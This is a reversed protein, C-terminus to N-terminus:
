NIKRAWVFMNSALRTINAIKNIQTAIGCKIKDNFSNSSKIKPNAWILTEEIKLGHKKLLIKLSKPNFGFVHFPIWTPQLNFVGKNLTIKNYINGIISLLHPENSCDIYIVGNRKLLNSAEEILKNPDHVHEIVGNLCVGDFYINENVLEKLEKKYLHIGKKKAFEIFGDSVEIGTSKVEKFDKSAAIFEGRGSGVDLISIPRQLNIREIFKKVLPKYNIEILDDWSKKESFYEEENVYIENLNKPFPFPNPFILSCTKCKVITTEVGLGFRQYKGGRLGIKNLSSNVCIPCNIKEFNFNIKKNM